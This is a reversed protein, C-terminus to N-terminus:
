DAARLKPPLGEATLLAAIKELLDVSSFPKLIVENAGCELAKAGEQEATLVIIPLARWRPERRIHRIMECGDMNAMALDTVVLGCDPHAALCELAGRGDEAEVIDYKEIQLTLRVIMRITTNDEVILIKTPM